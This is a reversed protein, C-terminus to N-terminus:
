TPFHYWGTHNMKNKNARIVLINTPWVEYEDESSVPRKAVCRYAIGRNFEGEKNARGKM